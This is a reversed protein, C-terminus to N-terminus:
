GSSAGQALGFKLLNDIYLDGAINRAQRADAEARCQKCSGTHFVDGAFHDLCKGAQGPYHISAKLGTGIDVPCGGRVEPLGKPRLPQEDAFVIGTCRDRAQGGDIGNVRVPVGEDDDVGVANDAAVGANVAHDIYRRPNLRM